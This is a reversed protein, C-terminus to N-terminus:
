FLTSFVLGAVLLCGLSIHTASVGSQVVDETPIATTPVVLTSPTEESTTIVETSTIVEEVPTVETIPTYVIIEETTITPLTITECSLTTLIIPVCVSSYLADVAIPGTAVQTGGGITTLELGHFNIKDEYAMSAISTAFVTMKIISSM